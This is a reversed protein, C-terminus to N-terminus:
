KSKEEPVFIKVLDDWAKKLGDLDEDKRRKAIEISLPPKLIEGEDLLYKGKRAEPLLRTIPTGHKVQYVLRDGAKSGFVPQNGRFGNNIIM